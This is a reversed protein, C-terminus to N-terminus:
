GGPCQGFADGEDAPPEHDILVHRRGFLQGLELLPCPQGVPKGMMHDLKVPRSPVIWLLPVFAIRVKSPRGARVISSNRVSCRLAKM